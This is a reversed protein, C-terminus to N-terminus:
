RFIRVGSEVHPMRTLILFLFTFTPWGARVLYEDTDLGLLKRFQEIRKKPSDIDYTLSPLHLVFGKTAADYM